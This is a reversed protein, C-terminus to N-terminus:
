KKIKKNSTLSHFGMGREGDRGCKSGLRTICLEFEWRFVHTSLNHNRQRLTGNLSEVKVCLQVYVARNRRLSGIHLFEIKVHLSAGEKKAASTSYAM